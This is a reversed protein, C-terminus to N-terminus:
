CDRKIRSMVIRYAAERPTTRERKARDFVEYTNKRITRIIREICHEVTQHVYEEACAIVGGSNVIYDPASLIGKQHLYSEAEVTLPKHDLVKLRYEEYDDLIKKNQNNLKEYTTEM